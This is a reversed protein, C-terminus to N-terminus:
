IGKADEYTISNFVKISSNPNINYIRVEKNDFAKKYIEFITPWQRNFESTDTKLSGDRQDGFADLREQAVVEPMYYTEILNTNLTTGDLGFNVIKKAGGAILFAYLLTISNPPKNWVEKPCGPLKFLNDITIIKHEYKELLDERNQDKFCKEIVLNSLMLLNDSRSLYDTFRPIRILNEYHEVLTVTACDSVLDFKKNIKNLITDEIYHFDNLTAWCIDLDKFDEIREKLTNLSAGKAVVFVPREDIIEEIKEVIGKLRM